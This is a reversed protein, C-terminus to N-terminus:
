DLNKYIETREVSIVLPRGLEVYDRFYLSETSPIGYITKEDERLKGYDIQFVRGKGYPSLNFDGNDDTAKLIRKAEEGNIQCEPHESQIAIAVLSQKNSSKKTLVKDM